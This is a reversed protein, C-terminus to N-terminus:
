NVESTRVYFHNLPHNCFKPPPPFGNRLYLLERQRCYNHIKSLEKLGLSLDPGM